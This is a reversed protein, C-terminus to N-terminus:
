YFCNNRDNYETLPSHVPHGMEFLKQVFTGIWIVKKNKIKSIITESLLQIVKLPVYSPTM